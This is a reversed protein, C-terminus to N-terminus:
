ECYNTIGRNLIRWNARYDIKLQTIQNQPPYRRSNKINKPYQGELPNLSLSSRRGIQLRGNQTM